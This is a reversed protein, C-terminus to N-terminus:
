AAQPRRPSPQALTRSGAAQRKILDAALKRVDYGHRAAIAEKAQRAEIIVLDPKM